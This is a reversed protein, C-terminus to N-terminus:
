APVQMWVRFAADLEYWKDFAKTGPRIDRRSQVDCKFRVVEAAREADTGLNMLQWAGNFREQLFKQFAVENCRIAAQAAAPMDRWSKRARVSPNSEQAPEQAGEETISSGQEAKDRRTDGPMAKGGSAPNIPQDNEDVEVLAMMYPTGLDATALDAPMEAHHVLFSIIIGANSQRYSHKKVTCNLALQRVTM